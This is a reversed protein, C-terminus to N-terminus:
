FPRANASCEGLMKSFEAPLRWTAEAMSNRFCAVAEGARSKQPDIRDLAGASISLEHLYRGKCAHPM